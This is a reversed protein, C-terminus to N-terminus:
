PELRPVQRDALFGVLASSGNPACVLMTVHAAYALRVVTWWKDVDRQSRTANTSPWFTRLGALDIDSHTIESGSVRSFVISGERLTLYGKILPGDTQMAGPFTVTGTRQFEDVAKAARRARSREGARGPLVRDFGADFIFDLM